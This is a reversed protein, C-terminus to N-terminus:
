YSLPTDPRAFVVEDGGEGRGVGVEGGVEPVVEEWSRLDGEVM